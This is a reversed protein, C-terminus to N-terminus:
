LDKHGCVIGADTIDIFGYSPGKGDRPQSASGPNFLYIGDVYSLLRQHTHGFLLIDVKNKRALDLVRETGYNVSHTHGHLFMIRKGMVNTIGINDSMSNYDCNGCVNLIRKDPYLMKVDDLENEGDGLFIFMDVNENAEFIRLMADLKKHIDSFVIIRM